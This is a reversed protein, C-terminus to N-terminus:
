TNCGGACSSSFHILSWATQILDLVNFTKSNNEIPAINGLIMFQKKTTKNKKLSEFQADKCCSIM